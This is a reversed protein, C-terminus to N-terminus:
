NGRDREHAERGQGGQAPPGAWPRATAHARRLERTKTAITAAYQSIVWIRGAPRGFRAGMKSTGRPYEARVPVEAVLLGHIAAEYLVELESQYHDGRLRIAQIAQSM